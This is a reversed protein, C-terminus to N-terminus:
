KVKPCVRRVSSIVRNRGLSKGNTFAIEAVRTCKKTRGNEIRVPYRSSPLDLGIEENLVVMRAYFNSAYDDILRCTKEIHIAGLRDAEIPISHLL